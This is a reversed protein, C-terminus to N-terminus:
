TRETGAAAEANVPWGLERLIEDTHEGILPPPREHSLPANRFRMPSAVQPVTGAVPHAIEILMQRHKIQADAFVEPITNIPGCPVGVRECARVWHDRERTMLVESILPTLISKNRVRGANTKFREDIALDPRELVECLRAFQDDNGVALVLYGDRTAFVDQPQINPHSNGARRPTRGSILHNMAQNALFSVGVDLMGIDIHEGHGSEQRRALAALVAIAAYMGTMIDVIPVGVKQPGGGPKGDAEGTVSMLGSMGQIMFDYAAQDRRPGSQGFGTISCYILAPNVASLDEYGLGYKALAGTKFNELVIDARAALARVIRQGEPDALDVAISRKGRNVALFYGADRTDRGAKDKLFPPGWGRTDDGAGPREVKVVDAGLDALVQGAWPGALIRSLDLVRIHSLPGAM